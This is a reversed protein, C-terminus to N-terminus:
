QHVCRVHGSNFKFAHFIGGNYVAMYYANGKSFEDSSWYWLGDTEWEKSIATKFAIKLEKRTPLKMGLRECSAIANEWVM